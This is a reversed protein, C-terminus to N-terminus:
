DGRDLWFRRSVGGDRGFGPLGRGGDGGIGDVARAMYLEIERGGRSHSRGLVSNRASPVDKQDFEYM